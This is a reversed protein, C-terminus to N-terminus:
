RGLHGARTGSVGGGGAAAHPLLDDLLRDSGDTATRLGGAGRGALASAHRGWLGPLGGQSMSVRHCLASHAAVRDSPAATSRGGDEVAGTAAAVLPWLAQM